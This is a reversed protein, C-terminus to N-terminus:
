MIDMYSIECSGARIPLTDDVYINIKKGSMHAAYAASVLHSKGADIYVRYGVTCDVTDPWVLTSTFWLEITDDYMDTSYNGVARVKDITLNDIYAGESFSQNSLLILLILTIKKM